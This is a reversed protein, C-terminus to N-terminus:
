IHILSLQLCRPHRCNRCAGHEGGFALSEVVGVEAECECCRNRAGESVLFAQFDAVFTAGCQLTESFVGSAEDLTPGNLKVGNPLRLRETVAGMGRLSGLIEDVLCTEFHARRRGRAGMTSQMTADELRRASASQLGLRAATAAVRRAGQRLARRQKKKSGGKTAVAADAATRMAEALVTQTEARDRTPAEDSATPTSTTSSPTPSPTPSTGPSSDRICM